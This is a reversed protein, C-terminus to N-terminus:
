AVQEIESLQRRGEQWKWLQSLRKYIERRLERPNTQAYLGELEEQKESGLAGSEKLREYPTRALDWKRRMKGEEQLYSKEALHLVPQFLNYYVWM